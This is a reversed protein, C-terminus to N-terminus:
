KIGPYPIKYMFNIQVNVDTSRVGPMKMNVLSVDAKAFFRDGIQMEYSGGIELSKLDGTISNRGYFGIRNITTQAATMGLAMVAAVSSSQTGGVNAHTITGILVKRNGITIEEAHGGGEFFKASTGATFDPHKYAISVKVATPNGSSSGINYGTAGFKIDGSKLPMSYSAGLYNQAAYKKGFEKDKDDGIYKVPLGAVLCLVKNKEKNRSLNWSALSSLYLADSNEVLTPTDDTKEIRVRALSIKIVDGNKEDILGVTYQNEVLGLANGTQIRSFENCIGMQRQVFDRLLRNRGTATAWNKDASTGSVYENIEDRLTVAEKYLGEFTRNNQRYIPQHLVNNDVGYLYIGWQKKPGVYATARFGTRPAIEERQQWFVQVKVRDAYQYQGDFMYARAGDGGWKVLGSFGFSSKGLDQAVFKGAALNPSGIVMGYLKNILTYSFFGFTENSVDKQVATGIQSTTQNSLNGSWTQEGILNTQDSGYTFAGASVVTGGEANPDVGSMNKQAKKNAKSATALMGGEPTKVGLGALRWAANEVGIGFGFRTPPALLMDQTGDIKMVVEYQKGNASVVLSEDPKLNAIANKQEKTLIMGNGQMEAIADPTNFWVDRKQYEGVAYLGVGAKDPNKSGVMQGKEWEFYIQQAAIHKGVLKGAADNEQMLKDLGGIKFYQGNIRVLAEYHMRKNETGSELPTDYKQYLDIKGEKVYAIYSKQNLPFEYMQGNTTLQKISEGIVTGLETIAPDVTQMNRLFNELFAESTITGAPDYPTVGGFGKKGLKTNISSYSNKDFYLYVDANGLVADTQTRVAESMTVEKKELTGNELGTTILDLMQNKVIVEGTYANSTNYHADWNSSKNLKDYSQETEGTHGASINTGGTTTAANANVYLGTRNYNYVNSPDLDYTGTWNGSGSLSNVKSYLTKLVIRDGLQEIGDIYVRPLKQIIANIKQIEAIYVRPNNNIYEEINQYAQRPNNWDSPKINLANMFQGVDDTDFYQPYLQIIEWLAKIRIYSENEIYKNDTLKSIMDDLLWNGQLTPIKEVLLAGAEYKTKPVREGPTVGKFETGFPQAYIKNALNSVTTNIISLLGEPNSSFNKYLFDLTQTNELMSLTIPTPLSAGGVGTIAGLFRTSHSPDRFIASKFYESRDYQYMFGALVSIDYRGREVGEINDPIYQKENLLISALTAKQASSVTLMGGTSIVLYNGKTISNGDTKLVDRDDSTLPIRISGDANSITVSGASLAGAQYVNLKGSKNEITYAGKTIQSGDAKLSNQEDLNLSITVNGNKIELPDITGIDKPTDISFLPSQPFAATFLKGGIEIGNLAAWAKKYKESGLGTAGNIAKYFNELNKITNDPTRESFYKDEKKRSNITLDDILFKLANANEGYNADIVLAAIRKELDSMKGGNKQQSQELLDEIAGAPDNKPDVIVLYKDVEGDIPSTVIKALMEKFSKERGTGTAGDVFGGMQRYEVALSIADITRQTKTIQHMAGEFDINSSAIDKNSSVIIIAKILEKEIGGMGPAVQGFAKELQAKFEDKGYHSLLTNYNEKTQRAWVPMEDEMSLGYASQPGKFYLLNSALDVALRRMDKAYDDEKKKSASSAGAGATAVQAPTEVPQYFENDVKLIENKVKGLITTEPTGEKQENKIMANSNLYVTKAYDLLKKNDESGDKDYLKKASGYLSNVGEKLEKISSASKIGDLIRKIVPNSSVEVDGAENLNRIQKAFQVM